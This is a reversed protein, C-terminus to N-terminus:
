FHSLWDVDVGRVIKLYDERTVRKGGKEIAPLQLSPITAKSSEPIADKDDSDNMEPERVVIRYVVAAEKQQNNRNDLVVLYRGPVPCVVQGEANALDSPSLHQAVLRDKEGLWNLYVTLEIPQSLDTFRWAIAANAALVDYDHIKRIGGDIPKVDGGGGGGGGGNSGGRARSDTVTMWAPVQMNWYDIDLRCHNHKDLDPKEGGLYAPINKKYIRRFLGPLGNKGVVTILKRTNKSVYPQIAAEVDTYWAPTNLLLIEKFLCPYHEVLLELVESWVLLESSFLNEKRSFQMDVIVLITEVSKRKGKSIKKLYKIIKEHQYLKYKILGDKGVSKLASKVNLLGYLEYYVPSGEKDVGCLGGSYFDRLCDPPRYDKVLSDVSMQERFELCKRIRADAMIVDFESVKLWKSLHVDSMDLKRGYIQHNVLPRLREKLQRLKLPTKDEDMDKVRREVAGSSKKHVAAMKM